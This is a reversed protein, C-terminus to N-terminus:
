RAIARLEHRFFRRASLGRPEGGSAADPDEAPAEIGHVLAVQVDRAHRLLREPEVVDYENRGRPRGVLGSSHEGGARIPDRHELDGQAPM